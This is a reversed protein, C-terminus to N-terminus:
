DSKGHHAEYTMRFAKLTLKKTKEPLEPTAPNRKRPRKTPKQAGNSTSDKEVPARDTHVLVRKM